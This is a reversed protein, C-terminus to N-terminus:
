LNKHRQLKHFTAYSIALLVLFVLPGIRNGIPDASATHAIFASIYVISFGAYVWEKIRSTVPILILIGGIIKAFALEIRFYDPFGLRSFNERIADQILYAYASLLMMLAIIATSVWYTIKITKM